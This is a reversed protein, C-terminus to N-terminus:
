SDPLVVFTSQHAARGQINSVPHLGQGLSWGTQQPRVFKSALLSKSTCISPHSLGHIVDFFRRIWGEPVMARPQSTSTDCLTTNGKSGFPVDELQLSSLAIRYAQVDTDKEQSTAMAEFDIGEQISEIAARFLADAVQNHKGQVHQIDTTFESIFALHMQQRSSWPDLLKGISFTVPKHDTYATFVRGELFYKFHRIGIYLALLEKVFASYKKEALCLQKSFFALLLWAKHLQQQLVAGVAEDSADTTLATPANKRSHALMAAEVLVMKTEHFAKLM